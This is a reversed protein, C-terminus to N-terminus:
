ARRSTLETMTNKIVSDSGYSIPIEREDILTFEIPLDSQQLALYKAQFMDQAFYSAFAAVRWDGDIYKLKMAPAKSDFLSSTITYYAYATNNETSIKDLRVVINNAREEFQLTKKFMSKSKIKQLEPVFMDYM